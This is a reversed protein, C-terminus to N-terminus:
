DAETGDQASSASEADTSTKPESPASPQGGVTVPVPGSVTTNVAFLSLFLFGTVLIALFAAFYFGFGRKSRGETENNTDPAQFPNETM